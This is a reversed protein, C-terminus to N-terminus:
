FSHGLTRFPAGHTGKQRSTGAVAEIQLMMLVANIERIDPVSTPHEASM